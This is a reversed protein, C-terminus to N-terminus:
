LRGRQLKIQNYPKSYESHTWIERIYCLQTNYHIATILRYNNGGINFITYGCVTHTVYMHSLAGQTILHQVPSVLGLSKHVRITNYFILYDALAINLSKKEHMLDIHNNIFEEQLTRNYREIIGNIKPCRPYTYYHPIGEKKLLMEFSGLNEPGNDNQWSLIPIPYVERFKYYFDSMTQASLHKYNLSFAFKSKADIASIFYDKIGDTVRVVTDSLIHGYEKPRPSQKARLRTKAKGNQISKHRQHQGRGPPQFFLKHRKIINGITSESLSNINKEQCFKELLPKIKEKGLKPHKKRLDRIFDIIITPAISKRTRHPKTSDPILGSLHGKAAKLRRRWKSILKRDVGFAEKTAAEGYKEYFQIIKFRQKAVEDGSFQKLSELMELTRWFGPLRSFIPCAKTQQDM